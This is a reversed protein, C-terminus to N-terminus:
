LSQRYTSPTISSYKKFYKGFTSQDSFHLIETIAGISLTQDQLLIKAELIVQNQIWESATLGTEASIVQSLYKPHIHLYDAYFQVSRHEKCHKAVAERFRLALKHISKTANGYKEYLYAVENVMSYVIGCIVETHFSNSSNAHLDIVKFMARFSEFENNDLQTVCGGLSSLGSFTTLVNNEVLKDQLFDEAFLITTMEYTRRTKDWRKISTTDAFIIAPGQITYETLDIYFTIEGEELLGIGYYNSRYPESPYYDLNIVPIYVYRDQTEFEEFSSKLRDLTEWKINKM